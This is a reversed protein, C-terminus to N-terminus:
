LEIANDFSDFLFEDSGYAESDAPTTELLITATFTVSGEEVVYDVGGDLRECLERVVSLGLGLGHEGHTDKSFRTFVEPKYTVNPGEGQNKVAITLTTGNVELTVDIKGRDIGYKCGNSILNKVVIYVKKPDTVIKQGISSAVNIQIKKEDIIYKLSQIAENVVDLPEFLAHDVSITGSEIEAAMVLNQVRFNLRLAEYYITDFHKRNKESEEIVLHPLMGLIATMPNNLESAILSLFSSKARESDILKKNLELIKKSLFALEDKNEADKM